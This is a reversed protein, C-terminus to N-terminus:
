VAPTPRPLVACPDVDLVACLRLLDAVTLPTAGTMRRDVWSPPVDLATAIARRSLNKRAAAARLEGPLDHTTEM